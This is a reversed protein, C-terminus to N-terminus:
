EVGKFSDQLFDVRLGEVLSKLLSVGVLDVKGKLIGFRHLFLLNLQVLLPFIEETLGLLLIGVQTVRHEGVGVVM